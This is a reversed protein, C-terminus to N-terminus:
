NNKRHYRYSIRNYDATTYMSPGGNWLAFYAIGSELALRSCVTCYPDGANTFEGSQDVRMFYLTAGALKEPATKCANLIANWEAHVCCTKDYKPKSKVDLEISCTRQSEDDLPPANYGSGIIGGESGVVVSGCKAHECTADKAINAALQFYHKDQMRMDIKLIAFRNRLFRLSLSMVNNRHRQPPEAVNRFGPSFRNM